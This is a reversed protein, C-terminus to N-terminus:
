RLIKKVVARRWSGPPLVRNVARKEWMRARSNTFHVRPLELVRVSPNERMKGAYIGLLREALYGDVRQEQATYDKTQAHRDFEELISFLWTCYDYFRERKMIYINGCCCVTHSLYQQM